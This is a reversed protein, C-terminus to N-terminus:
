DDVDVDYLEGDSNFELEVQNDFRVEYTTRFSKREKKVYLVKADPMNEKIYKQAAEPLEEVTLVKERNIECSTATFLVAMIAVLLYAKKM